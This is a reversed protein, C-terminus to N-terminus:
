GGVFGGSFAGAPMMIGGGGGGGGTVTITFVDSDALLASNGNCTARIFCNNNTAASTPTGGLVNSTFSLGAVTLPNIAYRTVTTTIAYTQDDAVLLSVATSNTALLRTIAASGIKVYDGATFGSISAVPVERVTTLASSTTTATGTATAQQLSATFASSVDDFLHGASCDISTIATGATYNLNGIPSGILFTQVNPTTTGAATSTVTLNNTGVQDVVPSEGSTIKWYSVCGKVGRPSGGGGLYAIEVDALARSWIAAHAGQGGIGATFDSPRGSIITQSLSTPSTFTGSASVKAAGNLSVSRSSGSAVVFIGQNWNGSTDVVSTLVQTNFGTSSNSIYGVLKNTASTVDLGLTFVNSNNGATALTFFKLGQGGATTFFLSVTLPVTGAVTSSALHESGSFTQSM